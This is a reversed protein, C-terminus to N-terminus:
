ISNLHCVFLHSVHRLHNDDDMSMPLVQPATQVNDAKLCETKVWINHYSQIKATDTTAAGVSVM